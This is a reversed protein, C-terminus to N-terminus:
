CRDCSCANEQGKSFQNLLGLVSCAFHLELVSRNDLGTQVLPLRNVVMMSVAPSNKADSALDFATNLFSDPCRTVPLQAQRGTTTNEEIVFFGGDM